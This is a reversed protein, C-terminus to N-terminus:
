DLSFYFFTLIQLSPTSKATPPAQETLYYTFNYNNKKKNDEPVYGM